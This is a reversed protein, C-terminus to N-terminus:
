LKFEVSGMYITGEKVVDEDNTLNEIDFRLMFRDFFRRSLSLDLSIYEPAYTTNLSDEYEGSNHRLFLSANIYKPNKYTVGARVKNKADGSLYKGELSHDEEDKTIESINYTYRLSATLDDTIYWEIESEAGYIEMESINDLMSETYTKGGKEYTKLTRSGIYDSAWSQYYTLRLWIKGFFLREAGAEWTVIEEPELDPNAYRLSRGGSRVHVKYLEFLSPARFGTGVSSRLATIDDPHFVIGAKPSFNDWTKSDYTNDYANVGPPKTDWGGGDSNDIRDYRGGASFILRNEFFKAEFNVFPSIGNQIGTAGADRTSTTYNEDYDMSVKKYSAGTTLTMTDSFRATNQIEAGWNYNEPFMETHDLTAYNDAANDQYATKDARNLYVLGTWDMSKGRHSVGLRYQDMQLDDYFFERGKGMEQNYYLMSLSIDTRDDPSYSIKGFVKGVDRYRRIIYDESEDPDVM